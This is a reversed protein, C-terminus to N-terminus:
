RPWRLGSTPASGRPLAAPPPLPDARASPATGRSGTTVGRPVSRTRCSAQDRRRPGSRAPPPAGPGIDVFVLRVGLRLEYPQGGDHEGRVQAAGHALQTLRHVVDHDVIDEREEVALAWRVADVRLDEASERNLSGQAAERTQQNR